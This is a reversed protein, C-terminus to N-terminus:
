ARKQRKLSTAQTLTVTETQTALAPQQSATVFEWRAQTDDRSAAEFVCGPWHREAAEDGVPAVVLRGSSGSVAPLKRVTDHTAPM